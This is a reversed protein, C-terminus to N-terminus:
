SPRWVVTRINPQRDPLLLPHRSLRIRPSHSLIPQMTRGAPRDVLCAANRIRLLNVMRQMGPTPPEETHLAVTPLMATTATGLQFRIRYPSRNVLALTMAHSRSRSQM